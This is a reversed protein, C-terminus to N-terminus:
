GRALALTRQYMAFLDDFRTELDFRRAETRGREGFQQRLSADEFQRLAAALAGSDGPPFLVGTEGDRVVSPIGGVNSAVCPVGAAMAQVLVIGFAEYWSPLLLVDAAEYEDSLKAPSIAGVFDVRPQVRLDRALNRLSTEYKPEGEGVIRLRWPRDPLAQLARIATEIGKTPVLRAVLLARLEGATRASAKVQAPVRVLNPLAHIAEPRVGYTKALAQQQFPSTAWVLNYQALTARQAQTLLRAGLSTDHIDQYPVGL